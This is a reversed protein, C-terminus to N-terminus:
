AQERGGLRADMEDRVMQLKEILFDLSSRAHSAQRENVTVFATRDQSLLVSENWMESTQKLTRAATVLGQRVRDKARRRQVYTPVAEEEALEEPEHQQRKTSNRKSPSM